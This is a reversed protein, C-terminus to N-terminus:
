ICSHYKGFRQKVMVKIRSVSTKPELLSKAEVQLKAAISHVTARVTSAHILEVTSPLPCAKLQTEIAALTTAVKPIITALCSSGDNDEKLRQMAVKVDATSNTFNEYLICYDERQQKSQAQRVLYAKTEAIDGLERLERVLRGQKAELRKMEVEVARKEDMAIQLHTKTHSVASRGGISATVFTRTLQGVSSDHECEWVQSRKKQLMTSAEEIATDVQDREAAKSEMAAIANLTAADVPEKKEWNTWLWELGSMLTKTDRTMDEITASLQKVEVDL